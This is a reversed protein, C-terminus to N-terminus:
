LQCRDVGDIDNQCSIEALPLLGGLVFFGLFKVIGSSPRLRDGNRPDRKLIRRFPFM